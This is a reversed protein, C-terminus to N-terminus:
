VGPLERTLFVPELVCATASVDERVTPLVADVVPMGLAVYEFVESSPRIM